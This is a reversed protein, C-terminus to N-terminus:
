CDTSIDFVSALIACFIDVSISLGSSSSCYLAQRSIGSSLFRPTLGILMRSTVRLILLIIVFHKFTFKHYECRIM